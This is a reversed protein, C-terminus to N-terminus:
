SLRGDHRSLNTHGSWLEGDLHISAKFGDNLPTYDNLAEALIRGFLWAGQDPHAATAIHLDLERCRVWAMPSSPGARSFGRKLTLDQLSALRQNDIGSGESAALLAFDKVTDVVSVPGDAAIGLPDLAILRTAEWCRSGHPSPRSPSGPWLCEVKELSHSERMLYQADMLDQARWERDMVLGQILVTTVSDIDESHQPYSLTLHEVMGVEDAGVSADGPESNLMRLSWRAALRDGFYPPSVTAQAAREVRGDAHCCHVDQISWLQHAKPRMRDVVVWQEPKGADFPIPDLRKPYLNVVPTAFLRFNRTSVQGLLDAPARRLAFLIEFHRADPALRNLAPLVDLELSLFRAPNAFYERLLRLGPMANPETPLLAQADDMADCRCDGPQLVHVKVQEGDHVVAMAVQCDAMLTRHASFATPLDGALSLSLTATADTAKLDKVTAHGELAFTLRVVAHARSLHEAVPAAVSSLSRVCEAKDLRLPLMHVARGTRLTIPRPRGKISVDILQGKPICRVRQSEPSQHDPHFALTTISPTPRPFLPAIRSLAQQAFEACELDMRTHIRASLYSLGELLREVFPDTIADAHLGLHSAVQPNEKAFRSAGGRLQRLEQNYHDIFRM